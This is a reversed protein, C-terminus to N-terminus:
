IKDKEIECNRQSLYLAGAMIEPGVGETKIIGIPKEILNRM